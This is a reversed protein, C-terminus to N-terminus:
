KDMAEQILGDVQAALEDHRQMLAHFASDGVKGIGRKQCFENVEALKVVLDSLQWELVEACRIFGDMVCEDPRDARWFKLRESLKKSM